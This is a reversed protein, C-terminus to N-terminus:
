ESHKDKRGLIKTLHVKRLCVDFETNINGKTCSMNPLSHVDFHSNEIKYQTKVYKLKHTQVSLLTIRKEVSLTNGSRAIAKHISRPKSPRGYTHVM